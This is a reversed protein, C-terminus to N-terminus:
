KRRRRRRPGLLSSKVLRLIDESSSDHGCVAIVSPFTGTFNRFAGGGGGSGGGVLGSVNEGSFRKSIADILRRAAGINEPLTVSVMVLYPNNDEIFRLISDSPNSSSANTVRYGKRTLVSELVLAPIQHLEGNPCCIFISKKRRGRRRKGWKWEVTGTIGILFWMIMISSILVRATNSAVHETAVDLRGKEWEFGVDYMVNRLIFGITFSKSLFKRSGLTGTLFRTRHLFVFRCSRGRPLNLNRNNIQIPRQDWTPM